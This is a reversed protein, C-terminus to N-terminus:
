IFNRNIGKVKKKRAIKKLAHSSRLSEDLQGLFLIMNVKM